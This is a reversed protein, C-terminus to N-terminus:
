SERALETYVAVGEICLGRCFESVEPYAPLGKIM